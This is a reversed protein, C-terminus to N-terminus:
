ADFDFDTLPRTFPSMVILRDVYLGDQLDETLLQRCGAVKAAAVILADWWSIGFRDEVEWAAERVRADLAQPAWAELQRIERRAINQSIPVALKRTAVVYFEHLVQVSLRGSRGRWLADLVIAARAQKAPSDRDHRYILVNADVFRLVTM